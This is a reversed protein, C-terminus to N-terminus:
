KCVEYVIKKLGRVGFYWKRQFSAGIGVSGTLPGDTNEGGRM